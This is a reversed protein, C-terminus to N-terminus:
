SNREENQKSEVTGNEIVGKEEFKNIIAKAKRYDSSDVHFPCGSCEETSLNLCIANGKETTCNFCMEAVELIQRCVKLLEEVSLKEELEEYEVFGM